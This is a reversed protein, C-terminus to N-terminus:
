YAEEIVSVVTWAQALALVPTVESIPQHILLGRSSKELRQGNTLPPIKGSLLVKEQAISTTMRITDTITAPPPKAGQEM